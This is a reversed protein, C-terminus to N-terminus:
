IFLLSLILSCLASLAFIVKGCEECEHGPLQERLDKKRVVEVFAFANEKKSSSDGQVEDNDGHDRKGETSKRLASGFVSPAASSKFSYPLRLLTADREGGTAPGAKNEYLNKRFQILEESEKRKKERKKKDRGREEREEDSSGGIYVTSYEENEYQKEEKRQNTEKKMKEKSQPTNIDYVGRTIKNEKQKEKQKRTATIFQLSDPEAELYFESFGVRSDPIADVDIVDKRPQIGEEGEEKREEECDTYNDKDRISVEMTINKETLQTLSGSLISSVNTSKWGSNEEKIRNLMNTASNVSRVVPSPQSCAKKKKAEPRQLDDEPEDFNNISNQTERESELLDKASLLLSHPRKKPKSNRQELEEVKFPESM